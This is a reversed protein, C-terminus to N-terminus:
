RDLYVAGAARSALRCAGPSAMLQYHGSCLVGCFFRSIGTQYRSFLDSLEQQHQSRVCLSMPLGIGGVGIQCHVIYQSGLTAIQWRSVTVAMVM